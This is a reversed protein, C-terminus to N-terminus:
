HLTKLALNYLIFLVKVSKTYCKGYKEKKFTINKNCNNNSEKMYIGKM